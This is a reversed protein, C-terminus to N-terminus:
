LAAWDEARMGVCYVSDRGKIFPQAVLPTYVAGERASAYVALCNGAVGANANRWDPKLWPQVNYYTENVMIMEAAAVEALQVDTLASLNGVVAKLGDAKAADYQAATEAQGIIKTAGLRQAVELARAKPVETSVYWVYVDLGADRVMQAHDARAYQDYAPDATVAAKYSKPAQLADTLPQALFLVSQYPTLPSAPANRAKVEARYRDWAWKPIVKPAAAPREGKKSGQDRWKAWAAYWERSM